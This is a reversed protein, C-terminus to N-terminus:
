IWFFSSDPVKWLFTRKKRPAPKDLFTAIVILLNMLFSKLLVDSHM